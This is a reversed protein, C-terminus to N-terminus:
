QAAEEPTLRRFPHKATEKKINAGFHKGKSEAAMFAAFQETTFNQYRYVTNPLDSKGWPKFEIDLENTTPSHGLSAIQSSEVATRPIKTM